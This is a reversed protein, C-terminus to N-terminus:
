NIFDSEELRLAFIELFLYLKEEVMLVTRSYVNM